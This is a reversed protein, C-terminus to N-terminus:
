EECVKITINEAEKRRLTLEYGRLHVQMPGNFPASKRVYIRTGPTIGMDIIRRRFAGMGDVNVVIGAEGNKLQGLNNPM